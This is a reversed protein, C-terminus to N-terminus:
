QEALWLKLNRLWPVLPKTLEDQGAWRAAKTALNQSEQLTVGMLEFNLCFNRDKWKKIRKQHKIIAFLKGCMHTTGFVRLYKEPLVSLEQKNFFNIFESIMELEIKPELGVWEDSLFWILDDIGARLGSHEWDIWVIQQEIGLIANGPRADWKVFSYPNITLVDIIKNRDINPLSLQTLESISGLANVELEKWYKSICVPKASKFLHINKAIEQLHILSSIGRYILDSCLDKNETNIVSSLRDGAIYEQVLWNKSSNILKPVPGKVKSIRKLAEAELEAHEINKRFTLIFKQENESTVLLVKNGSDDRNKHGPHSFNKVKYGTLDWFIKKIQREDNNEVSM